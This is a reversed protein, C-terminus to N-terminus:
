EALLDKNNEENMADLPKRPQPPVIMICYRNDYETYILDMARRYRNKKM